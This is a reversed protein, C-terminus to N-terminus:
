FALLLRCLTGRVTCDQVLRLPVAGQRLIEGDPKTCYYARAATGVASLSSKWNELSAACISGRMYTSQSSSTSLIDSIRHPMVIPHPVYGMQLEDDRWKPASFESDTARHAWTSIGVAFPLCRLCQAGTTGSDYSPRRLRVSAFDLPRVHHTLTATRSSTIKGALFGSLPGDPDDRRLSRTHNHFGSRTQPKRVQV